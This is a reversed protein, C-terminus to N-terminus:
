LVVISKLGQLVWFILIWAFRAKLLKDSCQCIFHQFAFLPLLLSPCFCFEDLGIDIYIDVATQFVVFDTKLGPVDLRKIVQAKTTANCM